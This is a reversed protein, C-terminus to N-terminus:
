SVVIRKQTISVASMVILIADSQYVCEGCNTTSNCDQAVSNLCYRELKAREILVAAVSM